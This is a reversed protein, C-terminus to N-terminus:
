APMAGSRYGTPATIFVPLAHWSTITSRMSRLNVEFEEIPVRNILERRRQARVAELLGVLRLGRGMAYQMTDTLGGQGPWHDNWGFYIVVVDPHWAELRPLLKTGQFSSYGPSSSNICEITKGPFHEALERQVLEPYVP